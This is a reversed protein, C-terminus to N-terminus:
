DHDILHTFKMAMIFALLTTIGSVILPVHYGYSEGMPGFILAGITAGITSIFTFIGANGGVRKLDFLKTIGYFLFFFMAADGMEHIVRFFFSIKVPFISMLIHCSGSLLLGLLLVNKVQWKHLKKSIYITALSMAMIATGMYIGIEQSNLMLKNKLFLGYSTSEAGFHIAFLFMIGLFFLVKPKMIDQKYHLIEFKTTKNEPLLMISVLTMIIFSVAIIMFINRFPFEMHLVQGAVIIGMGLSLYRLGHWIGIEKSVSSQSTSKYFLSQSASSYLSQGFGGIFFLLAILGFDQTLSLILYQSAMLVLAFGILHKSKFTDSGIGSPIITILSTITSVAFIIGIQAGSLNIEVFYIGLFFSISMQLMKVISNFVSVTLIPNLTKTRSTM